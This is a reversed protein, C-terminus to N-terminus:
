FINDIHRITKLLEAQNDHGMCSTYIIDFQAPFVYDMPWVVKQYWVYPCFRLTILQYYQM